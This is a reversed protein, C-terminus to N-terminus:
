KEGNTLKLTKELLKQATSIQGLLNVKEGTAATDGMHDQQIKFREIYSELQHTNPNKTDFTPDLQACNDIIACWIHVERIRDKAEQEMVLRRFQLEEINIQIRAITYPCSENSLAEQAQEIDVSNRRYAFSGDILSEYFGSLERISQWYKSAMTPHKLDNLVSINIETDTRFIQRKEWFGQIKDLNSNMFEAEEKPVISRVIAKTDPLM